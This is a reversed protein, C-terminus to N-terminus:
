QLQTKVGSDTRQNAFYEGTRNFLRCSRDEKYFTFAVCTKDNKCVSECAEFQTQSLAKYGSGPFIKGRYRSMAVPDDALPAAPLDARVGTVSRPDLKLSTVKSKLFCFRNWKDFSYAQCRSNITCAAACDGLTVNKMKSLDDGPLDRNEYNVFGGPASGADGSQAPAPGVATPILSAENSRGGFLVYPAWYFPHTYGKYDHPQRASAVEDGRGALKPDAGMVAVGLMELQTQQLVRPMPLNPSQKLLQYFRTMFHGSSRDNVSWLTAMVAGAGKDVLLLAVSPVDRGSGVATSCASLAVLDESSLSGIAGDIESLTMEEGSGLLMVSDQATQRLTFHTAIHLFRPGQRVSSLLHDRTFNGDVFPTGRFVGTGDPAEIARVEEAAHPLGTYRGLPQSMAFAAMIPVDRRGPGASETRRTDSKSQFYTVIAFREILWKGGDHFASFPIYSLLDDQQIVLTDIEPRPLAAELPKILRQYLQRAMAQPDGHDLDARFQVVLDRLQERGYSLTFLEIKGARAVVVDTKDALVLYRIFATHPTVLGSPLVGLGRAAPGTLTKGSDLLKKGLSAIERLGDPHTKEALVDTAFTARRSKMEAFLMSSIRHLQDVLKQEEPLLTIVDDDRLDSRVNERMHNFYMRAMIAEAEGIRGQDLLLSALSRYIDENQKSFCIGLRNSSPGIMNKVRELDSISIKLLAIATQRAGESDLLRAAKSLLCSRFTRHGYFDNLDVDKVLLEEASVYAAIAEAKFHQASLLEALNAAVEYSRESKGNLVTLVRTVEIKFPEPKSLADFFRIENLVLAGGEDTPVGDTGILQTGSNQEWFMQVVLKWDLRRAVTLRDELTKRAEEPNDTGYAYALMGDLQYIEHDVPAIRRPDGSKRAESLEVRLEDLRDSLLQAADRRFGLSVLLNHVQDFEQRPAFHQGVMRDAYLYALGLTKSEGYYHEFLLESAPGHGHRSSREMMAFGETEKNDSILAKGLDYEAPAYFQDAARQLMDVYPFEFTFPSANWNQAASYLDEARGSALAAARKTQISSLRNLLQATVEIRNDQALRIDSAVETESGSKLSEIVAAPKYGDRVLDHIIMNSREALAEEREYQGEAPILAIRTRGYDGSLSQQKPQGTQIAMAISFLEDPLWRRQCAQMVDTWFNALDDKPRLMALRERPLRLASLLPPLARDCEGHQVHMLIQALPLDFRGYGGFLTAALEHGISGKWTRYPLIKSVIEMSQGLEAASRPPTLAALLAEVKGRSDRGQSTASQVRALFNSSARKPLKGILMRASTIRDAVAQPTQEGSALWQLVSLQAPLDGYEASAWLYQVKQAASPGSKCSGTAAGLLRMAVVKGSTIADRLLQCTHSWLAQQKRSDRSQNDANGADARKVFLNFLDTDESLLADSLSLLSDKDSEGLRRLAILLSQQSAGPCLKNDEAFTRIRSWDLDDDRREKLVREVSQCVWGPFQKLEDAHNIALDFAAEDRATEPLRQARDNLAGQLLQDKRNLSLAYLAVILEHQQTAFVQDVLGSLASDDLNRGINGATQVIFLAAHAKALQDIPRPAGATKVVSAAIDLATAPSRGFAMTHIALFARAILSHDADAKVLIDRALASDGLNWFARARIAAFDADSLVGTHKGSVEAAFCASVVDWWDNSQKEDVEQRIPTQAARLCTTAATAARVPSFAAMSVLSALLLLFTPVVRKRRSVQRNM